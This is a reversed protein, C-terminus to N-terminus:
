LPIQHLFQRQPRLPVASAHRADNCSRGIVADPNRPNRRVCLDDSVACTPLLAGLSGLTVAVRQRQRAREVANEFVSGCDQVQAQSPRVIRQQFLHQREHDRLSRDDHRRMVCASGITLPKRRETLAYQERAIRRFERVVEHIGPYESRGARINERRLRTLGVIDQAAIRECCRMKGTGHREHELGVACEIRGLDLRQQTRARVRLWRADVNARTNSPCLWRDSTCGTLPVSLEAVIHSSERDATPSVPLSAEADNAHALLEVNFRGRSFGGGASVYRYSNFGVGDISVVGANLRTYFDRRLEHLWSVSGGIKGADQGYYEPTANISFSLGGARHVDVRLEAYDWDLSFDGPYRYGTLAVDLGLGSDSEWRWGFYPSISEPREPAAVDGGAYAALGLFWSPSLELDVNIAAVGISDAESLGEHMAESWLSGSFRLSQAAAASGIALLLGAALM